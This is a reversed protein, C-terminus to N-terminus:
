EFYHGNTQIEFPRAEPNRIGNSIQVMQLGVEKQVNSIWVQGLKLDGSYNSLPAIQPPM